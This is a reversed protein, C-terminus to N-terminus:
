LAKSVRGPWKFWRACYACWGHGPNMFNPNRKLFEPSLVCKYNHGNIFCWIHRYVSCQTLDLKM